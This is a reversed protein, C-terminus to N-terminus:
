STREAAASNQPARANRTSAITDEGDRVKRQSFAFTSRTPVSMHPEAASKNAGEAIEYTM